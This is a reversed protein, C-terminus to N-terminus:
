STNATICRPLKGVKDLKKWFLNIQFFSETKVKSSNCQTRKTRRPPSGFRFGKFRNQMIASSQQFSQKRNGNDIVPYHAQFNCGFCTSNRCLKLRKTQKKGYRNAGLKNTFPDATPVDNCSFGFFTSFYQITHNITEYSEALLCFCWLLM